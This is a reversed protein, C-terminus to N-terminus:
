LGVTVTFSNSANNGNGALDTVANAHVSATLAGAGVVSGVTITYTSGGAPVVSVPGHTMGPATVITVDTSTFSAAPEGFDVTFQVLQGTQVTQGAIVPTPRVNDFGVTNDTSTAATNPNGDSDTAAGAAITAVVSGQGDMGTVAVTYSPGSGSVSASLGPLSSASLDVDSDTFGSVPESFVVTFLIPSDNTPDAQAAAQNITVSPPGPVATCAPSEQFDPVAAKIRQELDCSDGSGAPGPPGTAGTDGKVGAPGQPGTAGTDGTDGKVGAPGQPGTAGTPGQLGIPGTAGTAGAAGAPGPAGTAGTDGKDGKVGSQNWALGTTGKPCPLSAVVRLNGGSDYCGQIVGGAGPTGGAAYAIAVGACGAVVAVALVTRRKKPNV